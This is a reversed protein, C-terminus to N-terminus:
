LLLYINTPGCENNMLDVLEWQQVSMAKKLKECKEVNALKKKIM